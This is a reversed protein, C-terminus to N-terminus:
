QPYTLHTRAAISVLINPHEAPAEVHRTLGATPLSSFGAFFAWGARREASRMFLIPSTSYIINQSLFYILVLRKKQELHVVYRACVKAMTVVEEHSIIQLVHFLHRRPPSAATRKERKLVLWSTGNTCYSVFFIIKGGVCTWDLSWGGLARIRPGFGVRGSRFLAAERTKGKNKPLNREVDKIFFPLNREM